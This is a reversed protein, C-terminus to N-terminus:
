GEYDGVGVDGTAGFAQRFRQERVEFPRVQDQV